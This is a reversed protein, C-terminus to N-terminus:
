PMGLIGEVTYETATASYKADVLEKHMINHIRQSKLDIWREPLLLKLNWRM